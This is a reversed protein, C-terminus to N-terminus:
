KEEVSSPCAYSEMVRSLIEAEKPNKSAIAKIEEDIEKVSTSTDVNFSSIFFSIIGGVIGSTAIIIQLERNSRITLGLLVNSVFLCIAAFCIGVLWATFVPRDSIIM